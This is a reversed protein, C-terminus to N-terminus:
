EDTVAFVFADTASCGRFRVRWRTALHTTVLSSASPPHLACLALFRVAQETSAFVIRSSDNTVARLVVGAGEADVHATLSAIPRDRTDVRAVIISHYSGHRLRELYELLTGVGREVETPPLVFLRM